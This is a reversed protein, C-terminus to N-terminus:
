FGEPWQDPRARQKVPQYVGSRRRKVLKRAKLNELVGKGSSRCFQCTFDEDHAGNSAHIIRGAQTPTLGGQPGSNQVAHWILQQHPTMAGTAEGPDFLHRQVTM